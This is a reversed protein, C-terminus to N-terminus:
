RRGTGHLQRSRFPDLPGAPPIVANAAPRAAIAAASRLLRSQDLLVQSVFRPHGTAISLNLFTEVADTAFDKVRLNFMTNATNAAVIEPEVDHDIRIRLRNGWAGSNAASFLAAAPLAPTQAAVAGSHVRVVLADSGGNAFYHLAAFSMPCDNSLSGFHREYDAFSAVRVPSKPDSDLPGRLARGVFATISTAVGTITRVGSSVEEIYVGPYSLAVPM